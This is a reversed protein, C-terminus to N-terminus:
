SSFLLTVGTTTAVPGMGENGCNVPGVVDAQAVGNSHQQQSGVNQISHPPQANGDGGGGATPVLVGPVAATEVAAPTVGASQSGARARDTPVDEMEEAGSSDADMDAEGEADGSGEEELDVSRDDEGEGEGESGM